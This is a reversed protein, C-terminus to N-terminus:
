SGGKGRRMTPQHERSEEEGLKEFFSKLLQVSPLSDGFGKKEEEESAAHKPINYAEVPEEPPVREPAEWPHGNPLTHSETHYVPHNLHTESVSRKGLHSSSTPSHERRGKVSRSVQLDASM